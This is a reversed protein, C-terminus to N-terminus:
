YVVDDEDATVHSYLGQSHNACTDRWVTVIEKCLPFGLFVVGTSVAAISAYAYAATVDVRFVAAVVAAGFGCASRFLDLSLHTLGSLVNINKNLSSGLQHSPASVQVPFLFDRVRPRLVDEDDQDNVLSFDLEDKLQRGADFENDNVNFARDLRAIEDHPTDFYM